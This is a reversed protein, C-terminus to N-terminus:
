YHFSDSEDVDGLRSLSLALHGQSGGKANRFDFSNANIEDLQEVSITEMLAHLKPSYDGLLRKQVKARIQSLRAEDTAAAISVGQVGFPQEPTTFDSIDANFSPLYTQKLDSFYAPEGAKHQGFDIELVSYIRPARRNGELSQTTPFYMSDYVSIQADVQKHAGFSLLLFAAITLKRSLM